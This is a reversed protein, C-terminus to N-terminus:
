PGLFGSGKWFESKLKFGHRTNLGQTLAVLQPLYHLRHDPVSRSGRVDQYYLEVPTLASLSTIYEAGNGVVM